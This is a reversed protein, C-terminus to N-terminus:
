HPALVHQRRGVARRDVEFHRRFWDTALSAVTELAGPEGFLHTAGPVVRLSKEGALMGLASENFARVEPDAGGVILLTPADVHALAAPGSSWRSGACM